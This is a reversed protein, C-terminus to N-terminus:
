SSKWEQIGLANQCDDLVFCASYRARTVAVYLRSKDGAKSVDASRLYDVMPKTPFVLVRDYTKGKILGINTAPFGQTNATKNYRLLVPRFTAVYAPLNKECIVFIGDHGTAAENLSNTRPFEEYLRDAFDCIAQNCRHCNCQENIVIKKAEELTKLWAFINSKRFQKNKQANNTSFTAQRPDGVIEVKLNSSFLMDLVSLDYGACDQLEDVFVYKYISELRSRISGGTKQDCEYAFEAVKNSYIDDSKTFYNDKKQYKPSKLQFYISRVRPQDSMQNQYPRVGEQLLFSFWSQISIHRPICGVRHILIARIQNLNELTYTTILVRGDTCKLAENVIHTTKGSGAASIHVINSSSLM